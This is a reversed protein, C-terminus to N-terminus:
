SGLKYIFTFCRFRDYNKTNSLVLSRANIKLKLFNELCNTLMKLNKNLLCLVNKFISSFMM